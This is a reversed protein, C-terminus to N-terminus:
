YRHSGEMRRSGEAQGAKMDVTWARDGWALKMQAGGSRPALTITFRDTQGSVSAKKMSIRAVESKRIEQKYNMHPWPENKLHDPAASWIKGLPQGLVSNLVLSYSGSEPCHVYVSYKGPPVMTGSFSLPLETTFTTIQESGARWMRDGPLKALLASFDRGGLSPRGYEVAVKKGGIEVSVTERPAMQAWGMAVMGFVICLGVLLNRM